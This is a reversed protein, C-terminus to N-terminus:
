SEPQQSSRDLKRLTALIDSPVLPKPLMEIEGFQIRISSRSFGAATILVVPIEKLEPDSLQGNRFDWGDMVPMMLDLVIASPRLGNRLRQLAALGNAAEVVPYGETELHERLAERLGADDDVVLVPKRPVFM